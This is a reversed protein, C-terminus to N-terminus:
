VEQEARRRGSERPEARKRRKRAAQREEPEDRKRRLAVKIV